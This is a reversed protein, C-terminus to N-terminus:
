VVSTANQQCRACVHWVSGLPDELPCEGRRNTGSAVCHKHVNRNVAACTLGRQMSVGVQTIADVRRSLGDVRVCHKHVNRNVAACTLGRQMSVGVQTIADVRRSLGDV